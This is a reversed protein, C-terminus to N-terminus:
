WEKTAIHAAKLFPQLDFLSPSEVHVVLMPYRAQLRVLESLVSAERDPADDEPADSTISLDLHYM